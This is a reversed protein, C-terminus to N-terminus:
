DPENPRPHKKTLNPLRLKSLVFKASLMECPAPPKSRKLPFPIFHSLGHSSFPFYFILYRSENQRMAVVVDVQM